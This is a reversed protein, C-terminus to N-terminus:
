FEIFPFTAKFRAEIHPNNSLKQLADPRSTSDSKFDPWRRYGIGDLAADEDDRHSWYPNFGMIRLPKFEFAEKLDILDWIYAPVDDDNEVIWFLWTKFEAFNVIGAVLCSRAFGIDECNGKTLRFAAM